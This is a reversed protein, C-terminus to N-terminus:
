HGRKEHFRPFLSPFYHRVNVGYGVETESQERLVPFRPGEKRKGVGERFVSRGVSEKLGTRTTVNRNYAGVPPGAGRGTM